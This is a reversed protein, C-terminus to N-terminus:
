HLFRNFSVLIRFLCIARSTCAAPIPEFSQPHAAVNSSSSLVACAPISQDALCLCGVKSDMLHASKIILDGESEDREKGLLLLSGPSGSCWISGGDEGEVSSLIVEGNVSDSTLM